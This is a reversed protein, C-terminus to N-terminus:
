RRRIQVLEKNTVRLWTILVYIHVRQISSVVSGPIPCEILAKKDQVNLFPCSLLKNMGPLIKYLITIYIVYSKPVKIM